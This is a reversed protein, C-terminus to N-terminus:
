VEKEKLKFFATITLGINLFVAVVWSWKQQFTDNDIATIAFKEDGYFTSSLTYGYLVLAIASVFLILGTLFFSNKKFILSGILFVPHAVLYILLTTYILFQNMETLYTEPVGNFGYIFSWFISTIQGLFWFYLNFFVLFGMGSFLTPLLFKEFNSAPILFLNADSTQHYKKFSQSTYYAGAFLIIPFYFFGIWNFASQQSDINRFIFGTVIFALGAFAGFQMLIQRKNLYIQLRCLNYFRKFSFISNM